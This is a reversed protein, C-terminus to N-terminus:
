GGLLMRKVHGIVLLRQPNTPKRRGGSKLIQSDLQCSALSLTKSPRESLRSQLLEKRCDAPRRAKIVGRAGLVRSSRPNPVLAMTVGTVSNVSVMMDM